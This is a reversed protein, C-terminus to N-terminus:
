REGPRFSVVIIARPSTLTDLMSSAAHTIGARHATLDAKRFLPAATFKRVYRHLITRDGSIDLDAAPGLLLPELLM